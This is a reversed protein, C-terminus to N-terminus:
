LEDWRYEKGKHCLRLGLGMGCVGDRGGGCQETLLLDKSIASRGPRLTNPKSTVLLLSHTAMEPCSLTIPRESFASDDCPDSLPFSM